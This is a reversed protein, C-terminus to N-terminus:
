CLRAIRETMEIVSKEIEAFGAKEPNRWVVAIDARKGAKELHLMLDGKNKRYAERIRRRLLNRTVANRFVKKPVSVLLRAPPLDAVADEFSCVVRFLSCHMSRGTAFLEEIRRVGCLKEAKSFSADRYEM